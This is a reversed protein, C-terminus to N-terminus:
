VEPCKECNILGALAMRNLPWASSEWTRSRDVQAEKGFNDPFMVLIRGRTEPHPQAAGTGLCAERNGSSM